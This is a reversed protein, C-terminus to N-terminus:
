ESTSERSRPATVIVRGGAIEATWGAVGSRSTLEDVLVRLPFGMGAFRTALYTFVASVTDHVTPGDPSDDLASKERPADPPWPYAKTVPPGGRGIDVAVSRSPRPLQSTPPRLAEVLTRLWFGTLEGRQGCAQCEGDGYYRSLQELQPTCNVCLKVITNV